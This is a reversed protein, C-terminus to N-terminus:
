GGGGLDVNGMFDAVKRGLMRLGQSSTCLVAVVRQVTMNPHGEQLHKKMGTSM